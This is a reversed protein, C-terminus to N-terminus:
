LEESPNSPSGSLSTDGHIMQLDSMFGKFGRGVLPAAGQFEDLELVTAQERRRDGAETLVALVEDAGICGLARVSDLVQVQLEGIQGAGDRRDRDLCGAAQMPSPARDSRPPAPPTNGMRLM